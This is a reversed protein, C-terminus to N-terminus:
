CKVGFEFGLGYLEGLEGTSSCMSGLEGLPRLGEGATFAEPLERPNPAGPTVASLSGEQLPPPTSTENSALASPSWENSLM